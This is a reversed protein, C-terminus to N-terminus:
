ATGTSAARLQGHTEAGAEDLPIAAVLCALDPGLEEEAVLLWGTRTQEIATRLSAAGELAGRAVLLALAKEMLGVAIAVSNAQQM